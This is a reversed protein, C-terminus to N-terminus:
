YKREGEPLSMAYRLDDEADGESDFMRTTGNGTTDTWFWSHTEPSYTVSGLRHTYETGDPRFLRDYVQRTSL